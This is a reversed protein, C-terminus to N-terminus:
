VASVQVPGCADAEGEAESGRIVGQDRCVPGQIREADELVEPEGHLGQGSSPHDCPTDQIPASNTVLHKFLSRIIRNVLQIAASM